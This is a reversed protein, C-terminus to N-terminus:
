YINDMAALAARIETRSMGSYDDSFDITVTKGSQTVPKNSTARLGKYFTDALTESDFKCVCKASKCKDKTNFVFTWIAKYNILDGYKYTIKYILKNGVETWSNNVFENEDFDSVDDNKECSASFTLAGIAVLVIIAFRSVIKTLVNHEM